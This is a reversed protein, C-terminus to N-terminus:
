EKKQAKAALEALKREAEKADAMEKAKRTCFVRFAHRDVENPFRKDYLTDQSFGIAGFDVGEIAEEM